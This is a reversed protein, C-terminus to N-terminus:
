ASPKNFTLFKFILVFGGNVICKTVLQCEQEGHRYVMTMTSNLWRQQTPRRTPHKLKKLLSPSAFNFKKKPRSFCVRQCTKAQAAQMTTSPLTHAKTRQLKMM